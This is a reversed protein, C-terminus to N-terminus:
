PTNPSQSASGGRVAIVLYSGDYFSPQGGPPLLIVRSYQTIGIREVGTWYWGSLTNPMLRSTTDPSADTAQTSVAVLERVTPLRWDDYGCLGSAQVARIYAETNCSSEAMDARLCAGSAQDKYGPFGGNTSTNSDFPTYTWHQDRLGGDATKIEWVLGTRKDRLCAWDQEGNGLRAASPLENGSNAIKLFADAQEPQEDAAALGGPVALATVIIALLYIRM